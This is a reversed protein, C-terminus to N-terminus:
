ATVTRRLATRGLHAGLERAGVWDYDGALKARVDDPRDTERFSIRPLSMLGGSTAYTGWRTTVAAVYGSSRLARVCRDSYTARGGFPYAFLKVAGNALSELEHKSRSVESVIASPPQPALPRHHVSHSGIAVVDPDLERLLAASAIRLRAQPQTSWDNHGGIFATPVFLTAPLRLERLIPYAVTFFDEYADDVTVAVLRETPERRALASVLDLLPVVTLEERLLELHWRLTAPSIAAWGGPTFSHYMVVVARQAGRIANVAANWGGFGAARFARALAPDLDAIAPAATREVNGHTNM